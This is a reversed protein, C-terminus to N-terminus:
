AYRARYFAASFSIIYDILHHIGFVFLFAFWGVAHPYTREVVRLDYERLFIEFCPLRFRVASENGALIFFTRVTGLVYM